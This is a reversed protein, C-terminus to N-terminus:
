KLYVMKMTQIFEGTQLQYFYIGSPLDTASFEIEYNGALKEENVLTAIESGLISYVKLSVFGSIAIQFKINTTPNFPNPYNQELVFENAFHNEGNNEVSVIGGQGGNNTRYIYHNLNSKGLLWGNNQDAFIM